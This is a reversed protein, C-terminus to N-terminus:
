SLTVAANKWARARRTRTKGRLLHIHRGIRTRWCNDNALQKTHSVHTWCQTHAHSHVWHRKAKRRAGTTNSECSNGHTKENALQRNRLRSIFEQPPFFLTEKIHRLVLWVTQPPAKKGGHPHVILLHLAHKLHIIIIKKQRPIHDRCPKEGRTATCGQPNGQSPLSPTATLYRTM